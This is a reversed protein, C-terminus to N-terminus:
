LRREGHAREDLRGGMRLRGHARKADKAGAREPTIRDRPCGFGGAFREHGPQDFAARWRFRNPGIHDGEVFRGFGFKQPELGAFCKGNLARCPEPNEFLVALM